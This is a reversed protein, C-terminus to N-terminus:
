AVYIHKKYWNELKSKVPGSLSMGLIYHIWMIMINRVSKTCWGRQLAHMRIARTNRALEKANKHSSNEYVRYCILNQPINAVGYGGFIVRFWLDYDQCTGYTEDYGGLSIIMDKRFMVSPHIFPSYAFIDKKIVHASTPKKKHGIVSGHDDILTAFSGVLSIDPNENLYRYQKEFRTPECVDDGDMRAVIQARARAMGMNLNKTIKQNQTNKIYVIRDDYLYKQVIADSGDTSADNIIILEFDAFTQCLISRIADDLYKECNYFPMIVSILPKKQTM